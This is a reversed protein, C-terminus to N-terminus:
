LIPEDFTETGRGVTVRGRAVFHPAHHVRERIALRVRAVPYSGPVSLYGELDPLRQIESAMVIPTQARRAQLSTGDRVPEAGFSLSEEREHIESQGLSESLYKATEGDAIRLVLWTQCMGMIVQAGDRGYIERLQAVSQLGLAACLGYKRAQTLAISLSDIKQLSAVEDLMLWLRAYRVPPLTMIARVAIDLWCSILPKLAEHQDAPRTIFLWSDQEDEVWQRISFFTTGDDPLYRFANIANVCTMKVSAATREAQPDVVSAGMTGKLKKYLEELTTFGIAAVLARNTAEGTEALKRATDEFLLRAAQSWFPDSTTKQDPILSKALHAYDFDARIEQWLNWCPSRADLPNLLIDQEERYYCEVLEGTPDFVIARQGQRRLLDLMEMIAVTKGTGTAGSLLFHLMEGDRRTPVGGLTIPSTRNDQKLLETLQLADVLESGREFIDEAIRRGHWTWALLVGVFAIAAGTASVHMATAMKAQVPPLYPTTQAVMVRAPLTFRKHGQTTEVDLSVPKDALFFRTLIQSWTYRSLLARQAPTTTRWFVLVFLALGICLSVVASWVCGMGLMKLQHRSVDSGRILNHVWSARIIAM